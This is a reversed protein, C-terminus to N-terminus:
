KKERITEFMKEVTQTDEDVVICDFDPQNPHLVVIMMFDVKVDYNKELIYRYINLQLSYHNFNCNDLNKCAGFGKEYKNERRIEKSRKWDILVLRDKKVKGNKKKRGRKVRVVFDISGSVGIEEDYILWETRFKEAKPYEEKFESWFSLFMKFEPTEPNNVPQGNLYYEIDQHMFTGLRSAEKGKLEWSKKIEETNMGPYDREAKGSRIMLAIVKYADFHPFFRHILKTTSIPHFAEIGPLSLTYVHGKERFEIYEDRPHFNLQALELQDSM